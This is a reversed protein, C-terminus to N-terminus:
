APESGRRATRGRAAKIMAETVATALWVATFCSVVTLALYGAAREPRHVVVLHVADTAFTSYTTYGGLIGVGLFPRALRPPRAASLLGAMLVGILLCGSANILMTAWPLRNPAHPIAVDLGYRAQAGLVGGIAVALLLDWERPTIEARQTPDDLEVDSDVIPPDPPTPSM